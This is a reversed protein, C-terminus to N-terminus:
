LLVLVFVLHFFIGRRFFGSLQQKTSEQIASASCPLPGKYVMELIVLSFSKRLLILLEPWVIWKTLSFVAAVLPRLVWLLWWFVSGLDTKKTAPLYVFFGPSQMAEWRSSFWCRGSSHNKIMKVILIICFQALIVVMSFTIEEHGRLELWVLLFALLCVVWSTVLPFSGFNLGLM